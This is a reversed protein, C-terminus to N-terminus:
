SLLAEPLLLRRPKNPDYLIYVPEGSERRTSAFWILESSTTRVAAEQQRAGAGDLQLTIKFVRRGNVKTNTAEVGQVRAEGLRGHHLLWATKRRARIGAGAICLGVLPFILVVFGVAGGESLRSGAIRALSPERPLHEISVRDGASWRHGTTYCRGRYTSGAVAYEFDYSWVRTDNIRMNTEDVLTVTGELPKTSELESVRTTGSASLRWDSLFHVPFFVVVFFSGFLAFVGGFIILVFTSAQRLAAKKLASPVRRPPSAALLAALEEDRVPSRAPTM